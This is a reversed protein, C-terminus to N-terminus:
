VTDTSFLAGGPFPAASFSCSFAFNWANPLSASLEATMTNSFLNSIQSPTQLPYFRVVIFYSYNFTFNWANPLAASHLKRERIAPLGSYLLWMESVVGIPYLVLFASYRAWTLWGPAGGAVGAAYWPYRVVQLKCSSRQSIQAALNNQSDVAKTRHKPRLRAAPTCRAGSSTQHIIHQCKAGRCAVM